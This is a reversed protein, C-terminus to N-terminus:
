PGSEEVRKWLFLICATPPRDQIASRKANANGDAEKTIAEKLITVAQVTKHGYYAAFYPHGKPQLDPQDIRIFMAWRQAGLDLEPGVIILEEAESSPSARHASISVVLLLPGINGILGKVASWLVRGSVRESVKVQM